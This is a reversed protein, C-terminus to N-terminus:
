APASGSRAARRLFAAVALLLLSDIIELPSWSFSRMLEGDHWRRPGLAFLELLDNRPITVDYSRDGTEVAITLASKAPLLTIDPAAVDHDSVVALERACGFLLPSRYSIVAHSALAWGGTTVLLEGAGEPDPLTIEDPGTDDVLALPGVDYLACVAALVTAARAMWTAHRADIRARLSLWVLALGLPVLALGVSGPSHGDDFVPGVLMAAVACVLVVIGVAFLAIRTLGWLEELLTPRRNRRHWDAIPDFDPDSKKM